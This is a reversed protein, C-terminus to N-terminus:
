PWDNNRPEWEVLWRISLEPALGKTVTGFEIIAGGVVSEIGKSAEWTTQAQYSPVLLGWCGRFLIEVMKHFNGMCVINPRPPSVNEIWTELRYSRTRTSALHPHCLQILATGVQLYGVSGQFNKHSIEPGLYHFDDRKDCVAKVIDAGAAKFHSADHNGAIMYYPLGVDPFGNVAAEVQADFGTAWLDYEFGPHMKTSGDTVDGPVLIATCREKRMLRAHQQLFTRQQFKSGFHPDGIIGLRVRKGRIRSIDVEVPARPPRPKHIIYGRQEALRVVEADTPEGPPTTLAVGYSRKANNAIQGHERCCYRQTSRKPAFPVGCSELACTRGEINPAKDGTM